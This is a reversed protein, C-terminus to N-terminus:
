LSEVMEKFRQMDRQTRKIYNKKLINGMFQMLLTKFKFENEIVWLTQHPSQEFFKNQVVNDAFNNEYIGNLQNLEDRHTIKEILSFEREGEKYTLRSVAGVQGQIGSLTEFNILTPQWKSMNEPNNFIKWVDARAKNIVTELKFRM